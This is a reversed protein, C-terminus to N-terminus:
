FLGSTIQEFIEKGSSAEEEMVSSVINKYNLPFGHAVKPECIHQERNIRSNRWVDVINDSSLDGKISDPGEYGPCPRVLGNSPVYLGLEVDHCPKTGLYAGVGSEIGLKAMYEQIQGHLKVRESQSPTYKHFFEENSNGTVMYANYVPSIGLCQFLIYSVPFEAMNFKAVPAEIGLRTPNESHFGLDMLTKLGHRSYQAHGYVGVMGDHITDNLASYGLIISTNLEYLKKGLDAGTNIGFKGYVKNTHADNGIVHGRTFIVTRIGLENMQELFRILGPSEKPEGRGLIRVYKLGLQRKAQEIQKILTDEPLRARPLRIGSINPTRGREIDIQGGMTFCHACNRTCGNDELDINLFIMEGKAKANQLESESANWGSTYNEFTSPFEGPRYKWDHGLYKKLDHANQITSEFSVKKSASEAEDGYVANPALKIPRIDLKRSSKKSM